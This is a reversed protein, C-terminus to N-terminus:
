TVQSLVEKLCPQVHGVGLVVFVKELLVNVLGWTEWGSGWSGQPIDVSPLSPQPM